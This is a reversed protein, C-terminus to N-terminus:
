GGYVLQHNQSFFITLHYVWMDQYMNWIKWLLLTNCLTSYICNCISEMCCSPVLKSSISNSCSLIHCCKALHKVLCFSVGKECTSRNWRVWPKWIGPFLLTRCRRFALIGRCCSVIHHNRPTTGCPKHQVSLEVELYQSMASYYLM